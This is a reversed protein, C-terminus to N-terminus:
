CIIPEGGLDSTLGCFSPAMNAYDSFKYGQKPKSSNGHGRLDPAIIHYDAALYDGLSSWVLAHDALGHLLLLPETGQKWELCSLEVKSLGIVKREVM